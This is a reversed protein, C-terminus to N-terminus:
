LKCFYLFNHIRLLQYLKTMVKRKLPYTKLIKQLNYKHNSDVMFNKYFINKYNSKRYNQMEFKSLTKRIKSYVLNFIILIFM